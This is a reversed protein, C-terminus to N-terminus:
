RSGAPFWVGIAKDVFDQWQMEDIASGNDRTL